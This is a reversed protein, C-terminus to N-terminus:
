RRQNDPGRVIIYGSEGIRFLNPDPNRVRVRVPFRSALHVWALSRQVQPLTGGSGTEQPAVGFAISEVQGSFRQNPKSMVYVDASAGAPIYKLQSERFNGIVWWNRVDILTFVRQGTHAYAGESITLETVRADFPAVVRCRSLNYQAQRVAAARAERQAILPLATTVSRQSRALNANSQRLGSGAQNRQALASQLQAQAVESQSRTQRLVEAAARQQTRARDIDEATVFQKALLPELRHLTDTALKYEAEARAIGAEAHAVNARGSNINAEASSITAQSTFVTAQAAEIAALQGAVVRNENYIQKELAQQESMARQLAFEYPQREVEFLVEGAKVLQNDKVHLQVIPGEVEPAIGILNAFVWADDTRPHVNTQWLTLCSILVAAAVIATGIWRARRNPTRLPTQLATAM